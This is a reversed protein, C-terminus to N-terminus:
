AALDDPGDTVLRLVRADGAVIGDSTALLFDTTDAALGLAIGRGIGRRAGTVM